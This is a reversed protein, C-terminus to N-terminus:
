KTVSQAEKAAAARKAALEAKKVALNHMREEHLMDANTLAENKFDGTKASVVTALNDASDGLKEGASAFSSIISCLTIITGLLSAVANGLTRDQNTNNSM